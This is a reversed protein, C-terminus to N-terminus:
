QDYQEKRVRIEDLGLETRASASRTELEDGLPIGTGDAIRVMREFNSAVGAADVLAGPGLRAVVARRAADTDHENGGVVGEAFAVLEAGFSVGDASGGERIARLDVAGGAHQSSARLM